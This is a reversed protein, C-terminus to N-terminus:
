LFSIDAMSMLWYSPLLYYSSFPSMKTFHYVITNNNPSERKIMRTSMGHCFTTDSWSYVFWLEWFRFKILIDYRQWDTLPLKYFTRWRCWGTLLFYIIHRFHLVCLFLNLYQGEIFTCLLYFTSLYTTMKLILELSSADCYKIM